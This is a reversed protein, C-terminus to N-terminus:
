AHVTRREGGATRLPSWARLPEDNGTEVFSAILDATIPALLIGNRYHGTADILGDLETPGIWPRGDPTAPRLGSWTETITFSGLTPAARLAASLLAAVAGATVREDFGVDEVTAGILLRGDPRPVLYAGPVWTPRRLFGAPAALALMQGKVPRVEPRAEPPIGAVEGAWAGAANIVVSAPAFGLESRVGLARRADCEVVVNGAAAHIVVGHKRCAALLARGLRRNDVYGQGHILLGGAVHHGLSPEAILTRRRDLIDCPVGRTAFDRALEELAELARADYATEIIGDLNLDVELEGAAAIRAVFDPYANLSQVCLGVLEEDEIRESHPALMGAGAWSAGRGPEGREFVRVTAGREALRFAVSLGVLGGGVVAVDGGTLAAM